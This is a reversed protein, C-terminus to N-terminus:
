ESYGLFELFFSAATFAVSLGFIIMVLRRIMNNRQFITDNNYTHGYATMLGWLVMSLVGITKAVPGGISTAISQLPSEWPVNVGGKEYRRLGTNETKM